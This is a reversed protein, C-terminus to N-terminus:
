KSFSCEMKRTPTNGLYVQVEQNTANLSLTFKEFLDTIVVTIEPRESSRYYDASHTMFLREAKQEVIGWTKTEKADLLDALKKTNAYFRHTVDQVVKEGSGNIVEDGDREVCEVLKTFKPISAFSSLSLFAALVVCTVKM